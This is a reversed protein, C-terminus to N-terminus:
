GSIRASIRTKAVAEVAAEERSAARHLGAVEVVGASNVTPLHALRGAQLVLLDESVMLRDLDGPTGLLPASLDKEGELLLM